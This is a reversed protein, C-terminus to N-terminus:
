GEVDADFVRAKKWLAKSEALFALHRESTQYVDHAAMDAFVMQVAVEFDLDNFPHTMGANRPGVAFFKMGPHGSLYKKCEGILKERAAASGDSLTFYVNHALM